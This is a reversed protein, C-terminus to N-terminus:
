NVYGQYINAYMIEVIKAVRILYLKYKVPFYPSVVRQVIVCECIIMKKQNLFTFLDM